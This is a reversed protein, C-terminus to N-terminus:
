VTHLKRTYQPLWGSPCGALQENRKRDRDSAQAAENKLRSRVGNAKQRMSHQKRAQMVRSPVVGVPDATNLDIKGAISLPANIRIKYKVVSINRLRPATSMWGYGIVARIAASVKKNDNRALKAYLLHSFSVCEDPKSRQCDRGGGRTESGRENHKANEEPPPFGESVDV